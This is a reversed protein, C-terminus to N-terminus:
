ALGTVRMTINIRGHDLGCDPPATGPHIKPVGHYAFRSERGFVFADGSALNVDTYPKGRDVVNGFRFRCTDGVSLSVVPENVTEDKDQHMGLRATTDYYNVLATDPRYESGPGYADDVVARGIDALWAPLPLVPRGNVDDATRTYRYPQWHWGLCVTHVSMRHGGPLAAARIPVPGTSWERFAEVLRKQQVIDLWDPLHIAGPAVTRRERGPYTFLTM